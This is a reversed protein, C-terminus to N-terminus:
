WNGADADCPTPNVITCDTTASNGAAVGLTVDQVVAAYNTVVLIYIEGVVVGTINAQETASSSYSCDAPAPLSGCAASAAAVNAYPGWLAFDIDSSAGIDFVLDGASSIEFYYWSPNPQTSLCGYDNGATAVSGIGATYCYTNDTCIPQVDPCDAGGAGGAACPVPTTVCIDFSTLQGGTSTYTYVRVYYTNGITLGTLSSNDADSCIVEAGLGPCGAGQEYVSHYMDTVTGAVNTLSINHETGTAVFTYWVDDDATGFCTEATPDPSGTASSISGATVTGCILDPNVTLAIAGGCDDNAPPPPPTGVCVDFTSTQGTTSTYTYVRVYYTNGPTLGSIISIDADNCIIEAGLGPCGAGQEYISHYMDTTSGAVNTLSVQHVTGTAVFTYWVDDDATGFCTEATPDPSGTAGVVTGPTVTGCNLDANVTLAIANNCDDNALPTAVSADLCYTTGYPAAWSAIVIYYQQGLILSPTLLSMDASSSGNTISAICAPSGSACANFVFLGAYTDSILSMDLQLPAGTGTYSYWFEGDAYSGNCPNTPASGDDPFDGANPNSDDCQQTGPTLPVASACGDGAGAPPPTVVTADLCFATNNPTGWNAIVIYYTQGNNLVPTSVNLDATSSGNTSSVVCAGACADLVFLGAYTNSLASLTLDLGDVGNGTYSFWYEDDDYWSDCPNTVGPFDGAFGASNGCQQSGPTLGVAAGCGDQAFSVTYSALIIFLLAFLNNKM